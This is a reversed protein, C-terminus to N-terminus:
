RFQGDSKFKKAIKEKIRHIKVRTNGETLGVIEAIESQPLGELVLSIIVRETEELESICKYLFQLRDERPEQEVAPMEVPLETM